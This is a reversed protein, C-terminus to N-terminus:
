RRRLDVVALRDGFSDAVVVKSGGPLLLQRRPAFPLNVVATVVPAEDPKSAKLAAQLDLITLQRPWLCAVTAVAHDESVQVSVPGPGVKVRRLEHLSGERNSLLIITGSEEDSAVILERKRDAALDSLKGGVRMESAVQLRRTDVVALTGSDRNAVLLRRDDDFLMLAIPRRLRINSSEKEPVGEGAKASLVVPLVVLGTGWVLVPLLGRMIRDGRGVKPCETVVAVSRITRYAATTSFCYGGEPLTETHPPVNGVHRWM